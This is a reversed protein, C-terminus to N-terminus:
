TSLTLFRRYGEDLLSDSGLRFFWDILVCDLRSIMKLTVWDVDSM